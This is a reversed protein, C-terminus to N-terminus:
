SATDVVTFSSNVPFETYGYPPVYLNGATLATASPGPICWFGLTPSMNQVVVYKTRQNLTNSVVGIDKIQTTIIEGVASGSRYGASSYIQEGYEIILVENAM